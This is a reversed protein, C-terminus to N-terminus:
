DGLSRFDPQLAPDPPVATLAQRHAMIKLNYVYVVTDVAISDRAGYEPLSELQRMMVSVFSAQPRKTSPNMVPAQYERTGMLYAILNTYVEARRRRSYGAMQAPATDVDWNSETDIVTTFRGRYIAETFKEHKHQQDEKSRVERWGVKPGVWNNLWQWVNRIKRGEEVNTYLTVWEKEYPDGQIKSDGPAVVLHVNAPNLQEPPPQPDPQNTGDCRGPQPSPPPSPPIMHSETPTCELPPPRFPPGGQRWDEPLALPATVPQAQPPRNPRLVFHKREEDREPGSPPDTPDPEWYDDVGGYPVEEGADSSGSGVLDEMSSDQRSADSLDPHESDMPLPVSIHTPSPPPSLMPAGEGPQAMGDPQDMDIPLPNLRVFQEQGRSKAERMVPYARRAKHLHFECPLTCTYYWRKLGAEKKKKEAIRRSGGAKERVKSSGDGKGGLGGKSRHLHSRNRCGTGRECAELNQPNFQKLGAPGAPVETDGSIPMGHASLSVSTRDSHASVSRLLRQQSAEDGYRTLPAHERKRGYVGSM